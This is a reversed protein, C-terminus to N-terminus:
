VGVDEGEEVLVVKRNVVLGAEEAEQEKPRGSGQNLLMELVKAAAVHDPIEVLHRQNKSCSKCSFDAWVRRKTDLAARILSDVLEEAVGANIQEQIRKRADKLEPSTPM